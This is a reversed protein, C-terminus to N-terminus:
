AGTWINGPGPVPYNTVEGYINFLIGPDNEKYFKTAPVGGSTSKSGAGSVHLNICQPYAQAGGVNSARHLAIIEHRLVYNGPKLTSPIKVFKLNEKKAGTCGATGCDALYDIIPGKHSDPWTFWQLTLTSGATVDVYAQGPTAAKHCIIDPHALSDPSVFGIDPNNATWGPISPPPNQYRFGPDWGTYNKGDAVIFQVFGHCAACTILASIVPLQKAFVSLLM